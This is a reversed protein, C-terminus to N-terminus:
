LLAFPNQQDIQLPLSTNNSAEKYQHWKWIGNDDKCFVIVPEGAQGYIVQDVIIDCLSCRIKDKM